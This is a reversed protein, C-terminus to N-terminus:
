SRKVIRQLYEEQFKLAAQQKASLPIVEHETNTAKKEALARNASECLALGLDYRRGLREKLIAQERDQFDFHRHISEPIVWLERVAIRKTEAKDFGRVDRTISWIFVAGAIRSVLAIAWHPKRGFYDMEVDDM